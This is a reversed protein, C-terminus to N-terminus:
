GEGLVVLSLPEMALPMVYEIRLEQFSESDNAWRHALIYFIWRGCGVMIPCSSTIGHSAGGDSARRPTDLLAFEDQKMAAQVVEEDDRLEKSAAM